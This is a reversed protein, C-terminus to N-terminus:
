DKPTPKPAEPIVLVLASGRHNGEVSRHAAAFEFADGLMKLFVSRHESNLSLVTRICFVADLAETSEAVASLETESRRLTNRIMKAIAQQNDETSQPLELRQHTAAYVSEFRKGARRRTQEHILGTQVLMRISYYLSKHPLGLRVALERVGKPGFEMLELLLRKRDLNALAEIQM